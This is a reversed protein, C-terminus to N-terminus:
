QQNISRPKYFRNRKKLHKLKYELEEQKVQSLTSTEESNYEAITEIKEDDNENNKKLFAKLQTKTNEMDQHLQSSKKGAKSNIIYNNDRYSSVLLFILLLSPLAQYESVFV